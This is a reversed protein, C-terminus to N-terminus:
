GAKSGPRLDQKVGLLCFGEREGGRNLLCWRFVIMGEEQCGAAQEEQVSALLEELLGVASCQM